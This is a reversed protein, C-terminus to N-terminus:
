DGVLYEHVCNEKLLNYYGLKDNSLRIFYTQIDPALMKLNLLVSSTFGIVKYPIPSSKIYEEFSVSKEVITINQLDRGKYWTEFPHPYYILGKELEAIKTLLAVYDDEKIRGLDVINAGIFGTTPCTSYDKLQNFISIRESIISPWPSYLFFYFDIRKKISELDLYTRLHITFLVKILLVKLLFKFSNTTKWYYNFTKLIIPTGIGDDILVLKDFKILSSFVRSRHSTIHSGILLDCKLKALHEIIGISKFIGFVRSFNAYFRVDEVVIYEGIAQIVLVRRKSYKSKLLYDVISKQLLTEYFMIVDYVSDKM